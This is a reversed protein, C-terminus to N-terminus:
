SFRACIIFLHQEDFDPQAWKWLAAREEAEERVRRQRERDDRRAWEALQLCCVILFGLGISLAETSGFRLGGVFSDVAAWECRHRDEMGFAFLYISQCISSQNLSQYYISLYISWPTYRFSPDEKM